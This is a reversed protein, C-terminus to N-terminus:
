IYSLLPPHHLTRSKFHESKSVISITMLTNKDLQTFFAFSNLDKSFPCQPKTADQPSSIILNWATVHSSTKWMLCMLDNWNSKELLTVSSVKGALFFLEPENHSYFYGWFLCLFLCHSYTYLTDSYWYRDIDNGSNRQAALLCLLDVFLQKLNFYSERM